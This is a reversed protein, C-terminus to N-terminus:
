RASEGDVSLRVQRKRMLEKKAGGVRMRGPRTRTSEFDYGLPRSFGKGIADKRRERKWRRM